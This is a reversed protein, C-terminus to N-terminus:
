ENGNDITGVDFDFDKLDITYDAICAIAIKNMQASIDVRDTLLLVIIALLSMLVWVRFYLTIEPPSM